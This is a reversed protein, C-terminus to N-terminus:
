ASRRFVPAHSPHPSGGDVFALSASHEHTTTCLSRVKFNYFVNNRIDAAATDAMMPLLSGAHAFLNHHLSLGTVRDEAIVGKPQDAVARLVPDSGGGSGSSPGTM